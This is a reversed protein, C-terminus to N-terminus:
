YEFSSTSNVTPFNEPISFTVEGTAAWECGRIFTTMFGVCSIASSDHGLTTHFIYGAGFKIAMMVPENQGTGGYKPDSYATALITMAEGPGRLKGYLIDSVHMWANPIGKMIPHKKSYTNVIFPRQPGHQGAPGPSGDIVIEGKNDVYRYPGADENRNGWGGLGIMQNYVHWQPFANDAAHIVVLGGGRRIYGELNRKIRNPWSDGNYTTVVVDYRGLRPNFDEMSEGEPAATYVDVFFLGSDDLQKLLLPTWARWQPHNVSRGDIILIKLKKASRPWQAWATNTISFIPVFLTIALFIFFYRRIM